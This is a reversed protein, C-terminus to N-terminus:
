GQQQCGSVRLAPENWSLFILGKHHAEEGEEGKEERLLTVQVMPGSGQGPVSPDEGLSGFDEM